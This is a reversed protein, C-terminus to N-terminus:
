DGCFDCKCYLALRESPGFQYHKKCSLRFLRFWLVFLRCLAGAWPNSLAVLLPGFLEFDLLHFVLLGYKSSVVFYIWIAPCYIIILTNCCDDMDLVFFSLLCLFQDSYWHNNFWLQPLEDLDPGCLSQIDCAHCRPRWPYRFHFAMHPFLYCSCDIGVSSPLMLSIEVM